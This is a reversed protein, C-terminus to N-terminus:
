GGYDFASYFGNKEALEWHMGHDEYTLHESRSVVGAFGPSIALPQGEVTVEGDGQGGIAAIAVDAIGAIKM